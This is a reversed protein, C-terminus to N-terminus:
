VVETLKVGFLKEIKKALNLELRKGSEAAYIVSLKENLKAALEEQKLGAKERAQRIIQAFDLVLVEEAEPGIPQVPKIAPQKPQEIITGSKACEPCVELLVGGIRASIRSKIKLGCLECEPM